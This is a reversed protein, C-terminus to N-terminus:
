CPGSPNPPSPAAPTELVERFSARRDVAENAARDAARNRERPVHQIRRKEFGQLLSLAERYLPLLSESRVQYRGQLQRVMLQSDAYVDVETAGLDRAERLGVLLGTYEGVNNTARGLYEGVRLIPEGAQNYLVAGGSAPGPNGKAAGDTEIRVKVAM